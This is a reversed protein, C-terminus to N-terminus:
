TKESGSNKLHGGGKQTRPQTLQKNHQKTQKTNITKKSEKDELDTAAHNKQPKKHVLKEM